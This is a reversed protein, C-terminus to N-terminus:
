ESGGPRAANKVYRNFHEVHKQNTFYGYNPNPGGCHGASPVVVFDFNKGLTVLKEVLKLTDQFLVNADQTGHIIMLRAQLDEGFSIPSADRYADPNQQPTRAFRLGPGHWLSSAPCHAVAAKFLTPKKFVAMLTVLGGYSGGYIGARETDAYPITQLHRMASELDEVEIGGVSKFVKEQFARGYGLSGRMDMQLIIYQGEQVLYQQLLGGWSNRATDRYVPGLIVPYKKSKDLNPPEVIRAHLTDGDIHSKFTVYRPKAWQYQYFEKQPSRTVQREPERSQTDAIYLDIPNVDDDRLTAVFRGNPAITPRHLGALRTVPTVPGGMESVRYVQREYPSKQTSVFFVDGTASMLDMNSALGDQVVEYDGPTLLTPKGGGDLPRSYIHHWGDDNTLYIIAKGDRRWDAHWFPTVRTPRHDHWVERIAADNAVDVTWIWRHETDESFEDVLVHRGDPSWSFDGIRHGKRGQPRVLRVVGTGVDLLALGGSGLDPDAPNPRRITVMTVDEALYNPINVARISNPRENFVLAMSKGDPSWKYQNFRIGEPSSKVLPTIEGSAVSLAMPMGQQVFALVSGDPAFALNMRMARTDALPKRPSGDIPIRVLQGEHSVVLAASDPTWIMDALGGGRMMMMTALRLQDADMPGRPSTPFEKALDTLRRPAGGDAAAIWVDRDGMGTDDWMFAVHRSDPSWVPNAPATGDLKPRTSSLRELTLRPAQPAAALRSGFALATALGCALAAAVALTPRRHIASM